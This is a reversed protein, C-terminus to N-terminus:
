GRRENLGAAERIVSAFGAFDYEARGQRATEDLRQAVLEAVPMPAGHEASAARILRFDKQALSLAFGPPTFETRAIRAGYNKVVPSGFLTSTFLDLLAEPAIGGKEGLVLAESLSEITAGILFNGALKALAAQEPTAFAFSGQGLAAFVPALSTVVDTPGGAVIWLLKAKAAEPRGFVPAAVFRRGAEAHMAALRRVGAISLTSMSLHVAAAGLGALVGDAGLTVADVAADDALMSIVVDAGEAAARPTATVTAERIARAKDASRNWVRVTFGAAVLNAAMPAGMAGAGICGITMTM